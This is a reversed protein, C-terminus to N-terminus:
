SGGSLQTKGVAVEVLELDSADFRARKAPTGFPRKYSLFISSGIDEEFSHGATVLISGRGVSMKQNLSFIDARERAWTTQEAYAIAVSAAEGVNVGVSALNRRMIPDEVWLNGVERFERSQMRTRVAFNLLSSQHEFGVRALWGSGIETASSAFALSATGMPGLRRAVGLGLASVQDALYEGHGEITFGLPAACAVTTNAFVPGYENSTFAYDERVKGFGVAFDSCGSEVLQTQSVLPVSMAESRGFSDRAVFNVANQDNFKPAGSLSLSQRSLLTDTDSISAFLADAATPLVAMGSTALRESYLVDERPKTRTGFQVGGYRVTSGWFGPTSVTDGIRLQEEAGSLNITYRSELRTVRDASPDLSAAFTYDLVSADTLVRANISPEKPKQFDTKVAVDQPAPPTSVCGSTACAISLAAVAAAAKLDFTM